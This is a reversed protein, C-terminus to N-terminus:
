KKNKGLHSTLAKIGDVILGAARVGAEVRDKVKEITYFFEEMKGRVEVVVENTEKVLEDTDRTLQRADKLLKGLYFLAWCLFATLWLLCFSLVIFLVDKSTEIM